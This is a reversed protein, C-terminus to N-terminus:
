KFFIIDDAKVIAKKGLLNEGKKDFFNLYLTDGTKTYKGPYRTNKVSDFLQRYFDFYNNEKLEFYADNMDAVSKFSHLVKANDVAITKKPADSFVKCGVISFFSAALLLIILRMYIKHILYQQVFSNFIM